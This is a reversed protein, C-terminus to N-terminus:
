KLKRQSKFDVIKVVKEAKKCIRIVNCFLKVLKYKKRDLQYRLTAALILLSFKILESFLFPTGAIV